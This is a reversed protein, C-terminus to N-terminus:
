KGIIEQQLQNCDTDIRYCMQNAGYEDPSLLPKPSRNSIFCLPVGPLSFPWRPVTHRCPCGVPGYSSYVAAAARGRNALLPNAHGFHTITRKLEERDLIERVISLDLRLFLALLPM